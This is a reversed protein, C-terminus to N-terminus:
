GAKSPRPRDHALRPRGVAAAEIRSELFFEDGGAIATRDNRSVRVQIDSAGARDALERALARAHEVAYGCAAELEDFDRVGEELHVRFTEGAEQPSVLVHVRQTVSGVVAGIANAVEAHAPVVLRTHISEAVSPYYTSVPAGIAVLPKRLSLQVGFLDGAEEEPRLARDVFIRSLTEHEALEIGYAEALTAAVV